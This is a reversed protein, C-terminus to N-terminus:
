SETRLQPSSDVAYYESHLHMMFKHPLMVIKKQKSEIRERIFGLLRKSWQQAIFQNECPSLLLSEWIEKRFM